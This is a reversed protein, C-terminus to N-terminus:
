DLKTDLYFPFYYFPLTLLKKDENYGYQNSFVKIALGTKNHARFEKLSELRDRGKKVDIPVIEGNIDIVFELESNRKGKWYFLERRRAILESAVYNEYYIGSLANNKDVLFKEYNLGSQYTFMGVDSLYIRFLSDEDRILPSTVKEKLAFSELIVNSANLWFFPNIVDRNKAGEVVQSIKFNKNEKNLQKYINGYIKKSRIISETSTQYLGMDDLYDDYIERIKHSVKKFAKVKDERNSLFTDVVEPMGGVFMYTRFDDMLEKHIIPDIQEKSEFHNKVFNYKNEDYNLLYEDFTMPFVYLQNIKGVPFLFQKNTKKSDRHIRTRVLSGSVIVPIDRRKECFHKMMKLISPCEQVEDFFLLHDKDPNFHYHLSIYELVKDLNSNKEAFLTFDDDDSLDIKLYRNEKYYVKAFLEEVLYSKGVQRAGWIMLPKRNKDNNWEILQEIYKRKM